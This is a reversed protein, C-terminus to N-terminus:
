SGEHAKPSDLLGRAPYAEGPVKRAANALSERLMEQIATVTPVLGAAKVVGAIVLAPVPVGVELIERLGDVKELRCLVGLRQAAKTVRRVLGACRPCGLGLVQIHLM